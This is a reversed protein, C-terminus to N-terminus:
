ICEEVKQFGTLEEAVKAVLGTVDLSIATRPVTEATAIAARIEQQSCFGLQRARLVGVVNRLNSGCIYKFLIWIHSGYIGMDDLALICSFPGLASQPDITENEKALAGMVTAAGPNGDSMKIIMTIINDNLEIRNRNQMMVGDMGQMLDYMIHDNNTKEVM